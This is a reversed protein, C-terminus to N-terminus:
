KGGHDYFFKVSIATDHVPESALGASQQVVAPVAPFWM